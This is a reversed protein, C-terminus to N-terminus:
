IYLDNHTILGTKILAKFTNYFPEILYLYYDYAIFHKFTPLAKIDEGGLKKYEEYIELSMYENILEDILSNFPMNYYINDPSIALVKTNLAHNIEHILIITDIALVCLTIHFAVMGELLNDIPFCEKINGKPNSAGLILKQRLFKEREKVPLLRTQHIVEECYAILYNYLNFDNLAEKKYDKYVVDSM